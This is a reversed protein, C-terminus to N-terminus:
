IALPTVILITIVLCNSRKRDSLVRLQLGQLFIIGTPRIHPFVTLLISLTSLTFIKKEIIRQLM